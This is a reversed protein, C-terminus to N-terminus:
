IYNKNPLYYPLLNLINVDKLHNFILSNLIGKGIFTEPFFIAIPSSIVNLIYIIFLGEILGFIIGAVKDLQKLVPVNLFLSFFELIVSILANAIGFIIIVSLIMIIVGVLGESVLNPIFNPNDKARSYFLINLILETINEFVGYVTPNNVIYGHVVPYFRRTIIISLIVRIISFISLVFGLRLGKSITYILIFIMIMDLWNM